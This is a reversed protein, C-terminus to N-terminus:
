RTSTFTWLPTSEPATEPSQSTSNSSAFCQELACDEDRLDAPVDPSPGGFLQAALLDPTAITPGGARLWDCLATTLEDTVIGGFWMSRSRAMTEPQRDRVVIVNSQSCVDLCGVERLRAGPWTEVADALLRVQEDHDIHPHKSPRGCCCARCVLVTFM